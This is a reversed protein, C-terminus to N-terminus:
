FSHRTVPCSKLRAAFAQFSLHARAGALLDDNRLTGLSGDRPDPSQLALLPEELADRGM